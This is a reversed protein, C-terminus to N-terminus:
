FPIGDDGEPTEVEVSPTTSTAPEYEFDDCDDGAQYRAYSADDIWRVSYMRYSSFDDSHAYDVGYNYRGRESVPSQAFVALHLADLSTM